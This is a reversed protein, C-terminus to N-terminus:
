RAPVGKVLSYEPVNRVVCGAAGVVAGDGVVLGQLIVSSAGILAGDGIRCEGSITAGPNVSVYDALVADHGVTVSPNLHVHSGLRVNTSVQVGACIVSGSGVSGVSGLVASPHILTYPLRGSAEIRHVLTRRVSPDGVAIVYCASDSTQMWKSLTGLFRIARAALRDLNVVSPADDVVGVLDISPATGHRNVAEVVDLAERGFGGAGIVVLRISM